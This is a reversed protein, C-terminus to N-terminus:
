EEDEDKKIKKTASKQLNKMNHKAFLEKYISVKGERRRKESRMVLLVGILALLAFIVIVYWPFSTEEVPADDGSEFGSDHPATGIPTQSHTQTPPAQTGTSPIPAGEKFFKAVLTVPCAPMAFSISQSDLLNKETIASYILEFEADTTFVIDWGGFIYGADPTATLKITTGLSKYGGSTNVKGGAQASVDLDYSSKIFNATLTVSEAGMVYTLAPTSPNKLPDGGSVTWGSFMYGEMPQAIFSMPTGKLVTESLPESGTIEVGMNDLVVGGETSTVTLTNTTSGIIAKVEVDQMPMTFQTSATTYNSFSGAGASWGMFLWDKTNTVTCLLDIKEGASYKGGKINVTGGAPNTVTVTLTFESPPAVLKVFSATIKANGEPVTYVTTAGLPNEITGSSAIWSDFAYGADPTATLTIKSGAPYNGSQPSVKGGETAEITLGGSLPAFSATVTVSSAPMTFETTSSKADEFSGSPASWSSFVNGSAAKAEIIVKEGAAHISQKTIIDGKGSIKFSLKYGANAKISADSSPMLLKIQSASSDGSFPKVNDSFTWSHFSKEPSAALSVVDGCVYSKEFEKVGNVTVNSDATVKLKYLTGIAVHPEATVPLLQATSSSKTSNSAQVLYLDPALSAGTCQVGNEFSINGSILGLKGELLAGKDTSSIHITPGQVSISKGVIGNTCSTVHLTGKGMIYTTDGSLNFATGSCSVTCSGNIEIMAGAPLTFADGNCSVSANTLKLKSGDWTWGQQANEANLDKSLVVGNEASATISFAGLLLCFILLLYLLKKL